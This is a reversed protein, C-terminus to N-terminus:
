LASTKPDPGYANDGANGDMVMFVFLALTGLVPIFLLLIWGGSRNTDHLRRVTVAIMPVLVALSYISGTLGLSGGPLATGMTDDVVMLAVSILTNILCFMWYEKRRSRGSFVAYKKVVRLYWEM